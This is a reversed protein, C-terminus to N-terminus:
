HSQMKVIGDAQKLLKEATQMAEAALVFLGWYPRGDVRFAYGLLSRFPLFSTRGGGSHLVEGKQVAGHVVPWSQSRWMRSQHRIQPIMMWVAVTGLVAAIAAELLSDSGTNTRRKADHYLSRNKSHVPGNNLHKCIAFSGGILRWRLADYQRNECMSM